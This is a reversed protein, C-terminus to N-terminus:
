SIIVKVLVVIIMLAYSITMVGVIAFMCNLGFNLKRDTKSEM